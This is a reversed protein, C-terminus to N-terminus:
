PKVQKEAIYLKDASNRLYKERESMPADTRIHHEHTDISRSVKMQKKLLSIFMERIECSSCGLPSESYDGQELNKEQFSGLLFLRIKKMIGYKKPM